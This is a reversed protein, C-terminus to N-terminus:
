DIITFCFLLNVFKQTNVKAKDGRLLAEMVFQLYSMQIVAPDPLSNKDVTLLNVSDLFFQSDRVSIPKIYITHENDLKYPVPQDFYFYTKALYDLDIAM